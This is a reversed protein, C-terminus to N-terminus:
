KKPVKIDGWNEGREIRKIQTESVAYKKAIVSLKVKKAIQRKISIVNIENLKFAARNEPRKGKRAKFAKIVAPNKMQHETCELQNVWKLNTLKNNRKDFDLHIVLERKGSKKCFAAAVLRHTLHSINIMRGLEDAHMQEKYSKALAPLQQKLEALQKRSSQLVQKNTKRDSILGRLREQEEKSKSVKNRLDKLKKEASPTRTEFLKLKVIEYGNQLTGAILSEKGTKSYTKVRGSDSIALRKKGPEDQELKVNKWRERPLSKIPSNM